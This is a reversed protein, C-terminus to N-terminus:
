AISRAVLYGAWSWQRWGDIIVDWGIQLGGASRALLITCRLDGGHSKTFAPPTVEQQATENYILVPIQFHTELFRLRCFADPIVLPSKACNEQSKHDYTVTNKKKVWYLNKM